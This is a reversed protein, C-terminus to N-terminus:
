ADTAKIGNKVREKLNNKKTELKRKQIDEYDRKRAQVGTDAYAPFTVVSVEHLDIEKLTWKVTGDDRFDTEENIINFGFSCQDVDGRKVRQYLNVADSDNANIRISGWLGRSDTKLDLTGSKNRGLVLGTDHNILARIDNSLTDDFAGPSIEEYAGRFLETESNFVAFYGEIVMEDDEARTKLDVSISRMQRKERSM